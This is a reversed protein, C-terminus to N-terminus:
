LLYLKRGLVAGVDSGEDGGSLNSILGVLGGPGESSPSESENSDFEDGQQQESMEKEGEGKGGDIENNKDDDSYDDERASMKHRKPGGFGLDVDVMSSM